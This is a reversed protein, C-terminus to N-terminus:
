FLIGFTIATLEDITDNGTKAATNYKKETNKLNNLATSVGEATTDVGDLKAYAELVGIPVSKAKNINRVAQIFETANYVAMAMISAAIDLNIEAEDLGPYDPLTILAKADEAVRLNKKAEAYTTSEAAAKAAKIFDECIKEPIKLQEVVEAYYRNYDATTAYDMDIKELLAEAKALNEKKVTYSANADLAANVYEIFELCYGIRAEIDAKLVLYDAYASSIQEDSENGGADLYSELLDTALALREEEETLSNANEINAVANIFEYADDAIAFATLSFIGFIISFALALSIAKCTTVKKM